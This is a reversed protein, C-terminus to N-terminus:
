HNGGHFAKNEPDFLVFGDAQAKCLANGERQFKLKASLDKSGYNDTFPSLKADKAGDDCEAGGESEEDMPLDFVFALCEGM